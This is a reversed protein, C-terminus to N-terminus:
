KNTILDFIGLIKMFIVVGAFVFLGEVLPVAWLSEIGFLLPILASLLFGLGIFFVPIALKGTGIRLIFMLCILFAVLNITIFLMGDGIVPGKLVTITELM